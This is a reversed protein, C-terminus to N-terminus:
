SMCPHPSDAEAAVLSGSLSILEAPTNDEAPFTHPFTKRTLSKGEEEGGEGDESNGM